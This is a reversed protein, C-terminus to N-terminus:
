MRFFMIVVGLLLLFAFIRIANKRKILEALARTHSATSATRDPLEHESAATTDMESPSGSDSVTTNHASGSKSVPTEAVSQDSDTTPHNAPEMRQRMEVELERVIRKAKQQAEPITSVDPQAVTNVLQEYHHQLEDIDDASQIGTGHTIIHDCENVIKTVHREAETCAPPKEALTAAQNIFTMYADDIEAFAREFEQLEADFQRVAHPNPVQQYTQSYHYWDNMIDLLSRFTTQDVASIATLVDLFDRWYRVYPRSEPTYDAPDLESQLDDFIRPDPKDSSRVDSMRPIHHDHVADHCRWCLTVLNSLRHSGGESIPIKHHCHLEVEGHPGGRVGCHQCTYGDRQYVRRRRSDWDPPYRDGSKSIM